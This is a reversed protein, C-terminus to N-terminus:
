KSEDKKPKKEEKVPKKEKGKKLDEPEIPPSIPLEADGYKKFMKLVGERQNRIIGAVYWYALM